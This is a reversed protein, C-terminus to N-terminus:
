EELITDLLPIMDKPSIKIESLANKSIKSVNIDIEASLLKSIEKSFEEMNKITITRDDLQKVNGEADKEAYEIALKNRKEDIVEKAVLLEKMNKAITCATNLDLEKESLKELADFVSLVEIGKLRM